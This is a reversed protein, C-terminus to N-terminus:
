TVSFDAGVHPLYEPKTERLRQYQAMMFNVERFALYGPIYPQTLQVMEYDEYVVQLCPSIPSNYLLSIFIVQNYKSIFVFNILLSSSSM